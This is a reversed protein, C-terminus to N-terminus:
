ARPWNDGWGPEEYRRPPTGGLAFDNTDAMWRELQGALCQRVHRYEPRQAVDVFELPDHAIHYLEEARRPEPNPPYREDCEATAPAAVGQAEWLLYPKHWAEPRCWRIYHFDRTRVSRVPDYVDAFERQDPPKQGHFNREIFVQEHPSYPKGCLLPWFSRGQM